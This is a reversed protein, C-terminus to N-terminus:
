LGFAVRAKGVFSPAGAREIAALLEDIPRGGAWDAAQRELLDLFGESGDDFAVSLFLDPTTVEIGHGQLAERLYGRDHTFLCTAGSAIALHCVHHDDPDDTLAGLDVDAPLGALDQEGDPFNQPLYGVWRAAADESLGKKEVLSRRTEALLEESWALDLLELGKAVRGMLEHMVRSFVIDADLVARPAGTGSV